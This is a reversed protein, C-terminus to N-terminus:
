FPYSGVGGSLNKVDFGMKHMLKCAQGSRNGSRCFLFYTANKDLKEVKQLFAPSLFDINKAGPITGGAYEGATRVDLLVANEAAQLQEKFARGSLNQNSPGGETLTETAEEAGGFINKLFSDWSM